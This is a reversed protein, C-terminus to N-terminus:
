DFLDELDWKEAAEQGAERARTSIEEQRTGAASSKGKGKAEQGSSKGKGKAKHGKGKGKGKAVKKAMPKQTPCGRGELGGLIQALGSCGAFASSVDEAVQFQLISFVFVVLSCGLARIYFLM